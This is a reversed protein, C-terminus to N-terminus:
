AGDTAEQALVPPSGGRAHARYDGGPVAVGGDRPGRYWYIFATVAAGDAMQVAVEGRHYQAGEASDLVRWRDARAVRYVEGRVSAAEDPVVAPYQGLDLLRGHVVGTGLYEAHGELLGHLPFGRM